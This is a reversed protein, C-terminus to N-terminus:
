AQFKVFHIIIAAPFIQIVQGRPKLEAGFPLTYFRLNQSNSFKEIRKEREM